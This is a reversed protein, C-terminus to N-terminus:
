ADLRGAEPMWFILRPALSAPGPKWISVTGKKVLLMLPTTIL